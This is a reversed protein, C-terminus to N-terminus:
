IGGARELHISIDSAFVVDGTLSPAFYEAVETNYVMILYLVHTEEDSSVPYNSLVAIENRKVFSSSGDANQTKSVFGFVSEPQAKATMQGDTGGAATVTDVLYFNVVNSLYDTTGGTIASENFPTETTLTLNIVTAATSFSIMMVTAREYESADINYKDYKPLSSVSTESLFVYDDGSIETVPCLRVVSDNFNEDASVQLGTARTREANAFWSYTTVSVVLFVAILALSVVSSILQKKLSPGNM